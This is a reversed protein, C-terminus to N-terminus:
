HRVVVFEYCFNRIVYSSSYNVLRIADVDFDWVFLSYGIM